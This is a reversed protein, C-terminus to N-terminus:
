SRSSYYAGRGSGRLIILGTKRALEALERTATRRSVDFARRYEQNSLLLGENVMLGLAKIQRENFGLAKLDTEGEEPILDLIHEGPGYFTILFHKAKEELKPEELGHAKMWNKMKTIGTGYEEMEDIDHFRECLIENRPQHVGELQSVDLGKPPGGPSLIEVRDDFIMIQISGEQEYDRHVLANVIAERLAQYPYEYITKAKFSVVKQAKRTNRRIFKEADALIEPLTGKLRAEDIFEIRATGKFRAIKVQSRPLFHQPDKGFFLLGSWTPILDSSIGHLNVLIQELSSKPLSQNRIEARRKLFWDVKEGDIDDLGANEVPLLDFSVRGELLLGRFEEREMQVTNKGVRKYPKGFALYPKSSGKGVKVVLLKKGDVTLLKIEPYIAPDTNAVIKNSIQEINNKGSDVGILSGDDGVGFIVIGGSANAFSVLVQIARDIEAFSRKFEVEQNEGEKLAKLLDKEDM